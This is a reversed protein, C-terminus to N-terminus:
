RNGYRYYRLISFYNNGLNKPLNMELEDKQKRLMLSSDQKNKLFKMIFLNLIIILFYDIIQHVHSKLHLHMSFRWVDLLTSSKRSCEKEDKHSIKGSFFLDSFNVGHKMCTRTRESQSSRTLKRDCSWLPFENIGDHGSKDIINIKQKVICPTPFFKFSNVRRDSSYPANSM